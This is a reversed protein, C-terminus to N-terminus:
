KYKSLYYALKISFIMVDAIIVTKALFTNLFYPSSVTLWISTSHLIVSAHAHVLTFVTWLYSYDTYLCRNAATILFHTVFILYSTMVLVDCIAISCLLVNVPSVMAPRTLVVITMM